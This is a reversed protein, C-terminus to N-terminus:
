VSLSRSAEALQVALQDRDLLPHHLFTEPASRKSRSPAPFPPVMLAIV